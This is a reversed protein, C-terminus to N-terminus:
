FKLLPLVKTDNSLINQQKGVTQRCVMGMGMGMGMRLSTRCMDGKLANVTHM